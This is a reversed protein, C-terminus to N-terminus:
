INDLILKVIKNPMTTSTDIITAQSYKIGSHKKINSVILKQPVGRSKKRKAIRDRLINAPAQFHYFSIKYGHKKALKLFKDAMDQSAVTQKLLM